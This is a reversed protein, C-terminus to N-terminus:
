FNLTSNLLDDPHDSKFQPGSAGRVVSALITLLQACYIDQAENECLTYCPDLEGPLGELDGPQAEHKSRNWVTKIPKLQELGVSHAKACCAPTLRKQTTIGGSAGGM